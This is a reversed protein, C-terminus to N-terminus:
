DAFARPTMHAAILRHRKSPLVIVQPTKKRFSAKPTRCNRLSHCKITDM